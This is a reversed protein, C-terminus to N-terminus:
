LQKHHPAIDTPEKMVVPFGRQEPRRSKRRIFLRLALFGLGLLLCLFLMIVWFFPEIFGEYMGGQLLIPM